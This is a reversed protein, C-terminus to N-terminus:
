FYIKHEETETLENSDILVYQLFQFVGNYEDCSNEINNDIYELLRNDFENCDDNKLMYEKFNTFEM